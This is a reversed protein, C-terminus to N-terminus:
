ERWSARKGARARVRMMFKLKVIGRVGDPRREDGIGLGFCAAVAVGNQRELFGSFKCEGYNWILELRGRRAFGFNTRNVRNWSGVKAMERIVFFDRGGTFEFRALKVGNNHQATSRLQDLILQNLLPGQRANSIAHFGGLLASM